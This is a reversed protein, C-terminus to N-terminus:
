YRFNTFPHNAGAVVSVDGAGIANIISGYTNGGVINFDTTNGAAVNRFVV